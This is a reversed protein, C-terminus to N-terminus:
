SETNNKRFNHKTLTPAVEFVIKFCSFKETENDSLYDLYIDLEDLNRCASIIAPHLNYNLLLEFSLDLADKLSSNEKYRMLKFAERFRSISPVRFQNLPLVFDKKIIDEISSYESPNNRFVEEVASYDYPLFVKKTKESIILTNEQISLTDENNEENREPKKNEISEVTEEINTEVTKEEINNETNEEINEEQKPPTNDQVLDTETVESTKESTEVTNNNEEIVDEVIEVTNNSEELLDESVEITSNTEEVVEINEEGFIITQISPSSILTFTQQIESNNKSIENNVTIITSNINTIQKLITQNDLIKLENFLNELKELNKLNTNLLALSNKLSILLDLLENSHTKNVNSSTTLDQMYRLVVVKLAQQSNLTSNILNIEVDILNLFHNNDNLLQKTLFFM